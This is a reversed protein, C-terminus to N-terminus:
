FHVRYLREANRTTIDELEEVSGGKLYAVVEDEFGALELGPFGRPNDTDEGADVMAFRGDSEILIADSSG